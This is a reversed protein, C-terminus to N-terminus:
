FWYLNYIQHSKSPFQSAHDNNFLSCWTVQAVPNSGRNIDWAGYLASVSQPLLLRHQHNWTKKFLAFTQTWTLRGFYDYSTRYHSKVSFAIRTIQNQHTDTWVLPTRNEAHVPSRLSKKERRWRTCVLSGGLWSDLQYQPSKGRSYLPQPTFIVVWGM